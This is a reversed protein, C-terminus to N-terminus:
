LKGFYITIILREQAKRKKRRGKVTTGVSIPLHRFALIGLKSAM